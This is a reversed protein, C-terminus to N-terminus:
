GIATNLMMLLINRFDELSDKEEKKQLMNITRAVNECSHAVPINTGVRKARIELIQYQDINEEPYPMMLFIEIVDNCEKLREEFAKGNEM